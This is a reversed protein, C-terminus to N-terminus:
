RVREGVPVLLTEGTTAPLFDQHAALWEDLLGETQLAAATGAYASVDHAAAIAEFGEQGAADLDRRVTTWGPRGPNDAADLLPVADQTHELSLAAVGPPLDFRAVPSGATLLGRVQFPQGADSAIAAAIIGGQSHGVLLVEGGDPIGARRMAEVVAQQVEATRQSMLQVNSTLDFPNPGRRPDWEETGPVHVLWRTTGDEGTVPTVAVRPDYHGDTQVGYALDREMLLLDSVPRDGFRRASGVVPDGVPVPGTDELLGLRQALTQLGVVAETYDSTPWSWGSAALLALVGVPGGALSAGGVLVGQVLGPAARTLADMLWPNEHLLEGVAGLPDELVEGLEEGAEDLFAALDEAAEVAPAVRDAVEDVLREGAATAVEELLALRRDVEQYAAVATRVLGSLAELELSLWAAGGPAATATAIASQVRGFEVPCLVASALVDGELAQRGLQWGTERVADASAGLRAYAAELEAYEVELHSM